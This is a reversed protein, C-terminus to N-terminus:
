AKYLQKLDQTIQAGLTRDQDEARAKVQLCVCRSPRGTM